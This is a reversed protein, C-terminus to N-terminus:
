AAVFGSVRTGEGPRSRVDLTGGVSELRAALYHLPMRGGTDFGPGTDTVEFSLGGPRARLTLTVEAGPAHKHANSIAELCALYVTSEVEAPFRRGVLPPDVDLAVTGLPELRDTLAAVLGHEALPLSLLGTATTHLVEETSALLQRLRDLHRLAEAPEGAGLQHEVMALSMQLAVMHHQAGDHLDRELQYRQQEIEGAARSRADALLADSRGAVKAAEDAALQARIDSLLLHTVTLLEPWRRLREGAAAPSVTVDALLRPGDGLRIRAEGGGTVSGAEWRYERADDGDGAPDGPVPPALRLRLTVAEADLCEGIARALATAQAGPAPPGPLGHVADVVRTV